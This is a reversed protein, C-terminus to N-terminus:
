AIAGPPLDGAPPPPYAAQLDEPLRWVNGLVVALEGPRRLPDSVAYPTPLPHGSWYGARKADQALTRVEEANRGALEGTAQDWEFELPPGLGNRPQLSYKRRM